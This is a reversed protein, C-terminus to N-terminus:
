KKDLPMKVTAKGEIVVEERQNMVTTKLVAINNIDISEIEAIATITDGFFVPKVFDSEQKLYITGPGPMYMGLVTSIFSNILAGHVVRSRFKSKKAIDENVHLPNFDACIGAFNYVDTETITKSFTGTQGIYKKM